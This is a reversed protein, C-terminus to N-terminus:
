RVAAALLFLLVLLGIKIGVAKRDDDIYRAVWSPSRPAKMAQQIFWPELTRGDAKLVHRPLM